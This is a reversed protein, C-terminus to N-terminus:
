FYNPQGEVGHKEHEKNARRIYDEEISEKLDGGYEVPLVSRPFYDFLKELNSHFYVRNRIKQSLFPKLIAWCPKVMFSQNIIHVEKYRGPICHIAAHYFLYLNQPTCLKLQQLTSGKFDHIFKFGNIQTMPDRLMQVFSILIKRKFYEVCLENPDYKGYRFIVIACGDPCRKPLIRIFKTTEKTLFFDDPLSDFLEPNKRRLVFINRIHNFARGTDHKSHRLYQLLFDEHFNIGSTLQEDTLMKRLELLNNLKTEPTEKLEEKLKQLVFDPLYKMKFPLTEDNQSIIKSTESFM